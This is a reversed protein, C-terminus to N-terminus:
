KGVWGTNSTGSEKVYFSTGAGGDLRHYISGVIATVVNEPSGTGVFSLNIRNQVHEFYESVPSLFMDESTAKTGRNPAQVQDTIKM